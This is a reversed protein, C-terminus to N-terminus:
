RCPPSYFVYAKRMAKKWLLQRLYHGRLANRMESRWREVRNQYSRVQITFRGLEELSHEVTYVMFPEDGLWFEDSIFGKRKLDHYVNTGPFIWLGGVCGLEDPQTRKLFDLTENVTEQTEGANGVMVLATTKLGVKKALRIAAEADKLDTEKGISKLIKLSGSEIGFGISYCGARKLYRLLNENICDSRTTMHFIINMERKIIEKCLRMTENQDVTMADDAFNFRRIGYKRYLLEIEDAMNKASRCRWGRWIRWTSCFNCHGVCGRSFIVQVLPELSLDIGRYVGKGLPPYKKMDVLHWAPFPLSDLDEICRRPKTKEIREGDRYAIGKVQSHQKGRILELFTIEGEGLVIFDVQPYNELIQRYMITAHVGGLVVKIGPDFDKVLQAVEFTRKRGPTLCTIGVVDPAYGEVREIIGAKGETFGDVVQVDIGHKLLIGALYLLNM